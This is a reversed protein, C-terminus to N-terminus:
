IISSGQKEEELGFEVFLKKQLERDSLSGLFDSGLGSETMLIGLRNVKVEGEKIGERKGEERITRKYKEADFEELLM